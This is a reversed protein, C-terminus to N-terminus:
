AMNPHRILKSMYSPLNSSILHFSSSTPKIIVKKLHVRTYLFCSITPAIAEVSEEWMERKGRERQLEKHNCKTSPLRDLNGATYVPGVQNSHKTHKKPPLKSQRGSPLGYWKQPLKAICNKSLIIRMLFILYFGEKEEQSAAGRRGEVEQM